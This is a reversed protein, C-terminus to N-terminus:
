NQGMENLRNTFLSMYLCLVKLAGNDEHLDVHNYFTLLASLFSPLNSHAQLLKPPCFSQLFGSDTMKVTIDPSM